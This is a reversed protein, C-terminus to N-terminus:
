TLFCSFSLPVAQLRITVHVGLIIVQIPCSPASPSFLFSSYPKQMAKSQDGPSRLSSCKLKAVNVFYGGFM